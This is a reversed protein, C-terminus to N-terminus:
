LDADFCVPNYESRIVDGPEVGPMFKRWDGSIMTAADVVRAGDEFYTTALAMRSDRTRNPGATHFSLAHHFSVEGLAFPADDVVVGHAEFAEAVQRDHSSDFKDFPVDEVSRYTEMGVAFALPGMSRPTAQLPIWATCVNRSAIPFHDDDFHWPTRGCGPEKSQANDHYLRVRPVGLLSAAIQGLRRSLVFARFIPSRLWMMEGSRFELGPDRGLEAVLDAQMERRLLVLAGPSLVRDLKVYGDRQFRTRAEPDLPYPAELEIRLAEPGPLSPPEDAVRGARATAEAPEMPTTIRNDARGMYWNWWQQNDGQWEVSVGEDRANAEELFDQRM